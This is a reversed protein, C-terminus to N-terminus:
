YELNNRTLHSGMIGSLRTKGWLTALTNPKVWIENPKVHMRLNQRYLFPAILPLLLPYPIDTKPPPPLQLAWLSSGAMRLNSVVKESISFWMPSFRMSNCYGMPAVLEPKKRFWTKKFFGFSSTWTKQSKSSFFPEKKNVGNLKQLPSNHRITPEPCGQFLPTTM